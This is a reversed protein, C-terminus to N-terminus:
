PILVRIPDELINGWETAAYVNSVQILPNLSLANAKNKMEEKKSYVNSVQILPNLGSELFIMNSVKNYFIFM